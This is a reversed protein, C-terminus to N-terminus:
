GDSSPVLPTEHESIFESISRRQNQFNYGAHTLFFPDVVCYTLIYAYAMMFACCLYKGYKPFRM